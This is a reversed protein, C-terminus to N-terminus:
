HFGPPLLVRWKESPSQLSEENKMSQIDLAEGIGMFVEGSQNTDFRLITEISFWDPIDHVDSPQWTGKDIIAVSYSISYDPATAPERRWVLVQILDNGVPYKDTLVPVRQGRIIVFEKINLKPTRTEKVHADDVRYNMGNDPWIERSPRDVIEELPRGMMRAADANCSRIIDTSVEKVLVIILERM